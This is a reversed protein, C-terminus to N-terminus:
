KDTLFIRALDIMHQRKIPDPEDVIERLRRWASHLNKVADQTHPIPEPMIVSLRKELDRVKHFAIGGVQWNIEAWGCIADILPRLDRRNEMYSYHSM